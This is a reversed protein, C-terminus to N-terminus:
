PSEAALASVQQWGRPLTAGRRGRKVTFRGIDADKVRMTRGASQVALTEGPALACAAAVRVTARKAIPIDIIRGGKAKTSQPLSAAAVIGLYGDTTCMAIRASAVDDLVLPTMVSFGQDLVVCHKGAKREATLEAFRIRFGLGADSLMVLTTDDSEILMSVIPAGGDRVFHRAIPEGHGRASGLTAAGLTFCRGTADLLVVKQDSRGRAHLGPGDGERYGLSEPDIAHGRGARIWEHRSLVVTVPERTTPGAAASQARAPTEDDVRETRRADTHQATDARLEEVVLARLTAEDGLVETLGEGETGLRAREEELAAAELRGLASLRLALLADTQARSLGLAKMLAERPTDSERVIRIVREIEAVGKLLGDLIHMRREIADLRHRCRKRVTETRWQSWGRVLAPLSLTKPADDTDVVTMSVRVTRELETAACLARMTNETHAATRTEVVLRVPCEEDSDDRVDLVEPAKREAILAAIQQTLKAPSVQPPLETIVAENGEITWRGRVRLTGTGSRYLQDLTERRALLTGGGAWDPGEIHAILADDDAGPDTLAEICAAAVEGLNHPALDTSMGVAIGSAGNCLVAPIRAPLVEPEEASADFNARWHAAGEALEDLWLEAIATLRAETYRMAAFSGPDDCSGWNGQGDVLPYRTAFEQALLVMAEYCASDGHPHYKGLVDGVIRACKKHKAGAKLGLEWMAYLIRRQVPKLGDGIHPIARDTLVYMAYDRYLREM